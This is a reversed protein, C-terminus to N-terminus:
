GGASLFRLFFRQYIEQVEQEKGEFRIITRPFKWKNMMKEETATLFIRCEKYRYGEGDEREGDSVVDKQERFFCRVREISIGWNEEIVM